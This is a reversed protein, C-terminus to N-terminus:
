LSCSASSVVYSVFTRFADLVFDRCVYIVLSRCSYLYRFMVRVFGFYLLSIFVRVILVFSVWRIICLKFM